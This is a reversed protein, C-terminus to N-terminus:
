SQYMWHDCRVSPLWWRTVTKKAADICLGLDEGQTHFRWRCELAERSFLLAAMIVDVPAGSNSMTSRHATGPRYKEDWIMVNWQPPVGHIMNVAPAVIGAHNQAFTLLRELGHEPLIIDSDLSFFYDPDAREIVLQLLDNRLDAMYQYNGPLGWIHRDIDNRKRGERLDHIVHADNDKLILETDDESATYLCYIEVDIKQARIAEFWWPLIWARDKVPCGVVIKM